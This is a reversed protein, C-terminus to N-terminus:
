KKTKVVKELQTVLKTLDVGTYQKLPQHRHGYKRIWGGLQELDPVMRRQANSYVVWGLQHALSLIYRHQRNSSDFTAYSAYRANVGHRLFYILDDAELTTLDKTSSRTPDATFSAILEAKAEPEKLHAPLLTHITRSQQATITM